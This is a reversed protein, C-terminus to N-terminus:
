RLADILGAGTMCTNYAIRDEQEKTSILYDEIQTYKIGALQEKAYAAGASKCSALSPEIAAQINRMCTTDLYSVTMTTEETVSNAAILTYTVVNGNNMKTLQNCGNKVLFEADYSNEIVADSWCYQNVTRNEVQVGDQIRVSVTVNTDEKGMFSCSGSSAGPGTSTEATKIWTGEFSESAGAYITTQCADKTWTTMRGNSIKYFIKNGWTKVFAGNTACKSSLLQYSTSDFRVDQDTYFQLTIPLATVAIDGSSQASSSVNSETCANLGICLFLLITIDKIV